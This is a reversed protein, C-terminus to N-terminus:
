NEQQNKKVFCQNQDSAHSKLTEALRHAFLSVHGAGLCLVTTQQRPSKKLFSLLEKTTPFAKNKSVIGTDLLTRSLRQTTAGQIPNEGASYLPMFFVADVGKFAQVFEDFLHHLRSYRHIECIVVLRGQIHATAAQITAMIEAPHHAYDDIITTTGLTAVHTFRRKVGPFAGLAKRVSEEKLRLAFSTAIAAGANLVNHAGYLPITLNKWSRKTPLLASFTNKGSHGEHINLKIHAKSSFGYTLYPKSLKPLLKQVRPCDACLIRYGNIPVDELFALFSGLLIDENKYFDMHECDINTIVAIHAPIKQHTGDSEDAEAVMWAGKGLRVSSGFANMIGGTIILPDQQTEALVWGILSSTTTKGHSGTIAITKHAQAIDALIDSRHVVPLNQKRATIIEVHDDKIASSRVVCTVDELNKEEHGYFVPVGKKELARTTEKPAIDSGKVRHGHAALTHALGSM